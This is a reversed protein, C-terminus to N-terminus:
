ASRTMEASLTTQPLFAGVERLAEVLPRTDLGCAPEGRELSLWAATGAAQGMMAAAPMVRISGHVMVDSSNCRGAAWLNRWGRPVIIGYPLGFCEGPGLRGTEDKERLFREYEEDSCDRVHIDVFKNFVGIQDPFQRRASYDDFTLEYEGVIRRTERVGMLAGTAVLEMRECAPVYKRYFSLYERVLRRGLMMGETLGRVTLADKGFLHGANLMGLREGTRFLGPLHRDPQTFHGDAVAQEVLEQQPRPWERGWDIGSHLSCLTGPMFEPNTRWEAGCDAAFAADGTCDVYAKARVFALGEVSHLVAGSVEGSGADAEAAVARTFLRVEVGALTTKEDLVLKLGEASFPTWTHYRKRWYDPTVQPGLFGREYMAEVLELQWGGVLNREGDAMPDFATVLGSTGMGGLCGTAEVLLVRAGRRAATVAAAVGAPGGGAVLVDYGDEVPVDRAFGHTAM